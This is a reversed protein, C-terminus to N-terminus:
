GGLESRDCMVCGFGMTRRCYNPFLICLFPTLPITHWYGNYIVRRRYSKYDSMQMPLFGRSRYMFM